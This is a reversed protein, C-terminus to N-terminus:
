LQTNIGWLSLAKNIMDKYKEAEQKYKNVNEMEQKLKINEEVLKDYEQQLKKNKSLLKNKEQKKDEFAKKLKAYEQQLTTLEILLQSSNNNITKGINLATVISTDIPIFSIDDTDSKPSSNIGNLIVRNKNTNITIINDSLDVRSKDLMDNNKKEM